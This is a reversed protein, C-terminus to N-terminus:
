EVPEFRGNSVRYISLGLDAPTAGQRDGAEDFRIPGTLGTFGSERLARALAAREITLAGDADEVATADLARLLLTVADHTQLVFPTVPERGFMVRFREIFAADPMAGGTVIAGEAVAGAAAADPVSLIGDPGIFPSGYGSERLQRLILFGEPNLGEFVVVEPAASEVRAALSSFDVEGREIRERSLVRGGVAEFATAFGDALSKGYPEGDDVVVATAAGAASAYAAQQEAQKADRWAVRFLYTEGQGSLEDRTVSPSLHVVSAQEYLNGAALAGTTCIPGVVGALAADSILRRAAAAAKEADNCGDDQRSVEIAHDRLVAGWDAVALAAADAIDAGIQSEAGTLPASVGVTFTEGARIVISGGRQPELTPPAEPVDDAGCAGLTLAAVLLAARLISRRM